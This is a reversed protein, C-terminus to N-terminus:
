NVISKYNKHDTIFRDWELFFTIWARAHKHLHKSQLQRWEEPLNIGLFKEVLLCEISFIEKETRLNLYCCHLIEHFYTMVLNLIFTSYSKDLLFLLKEVNIFITGKANNALYFAFSKDKAPEKIKASNEKVKKEYLKTQYILNIEIKPSFLPQHNEFVFCYCTEFLKLLFRQLNEIDSTLFKKLENCLQEIRSGEPLSEMYFSHEETV